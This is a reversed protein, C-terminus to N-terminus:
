GVADNVLLSCSRQLELLTACCHRGCTEEAVCSTTASSVNAVLLAKLQRATMSILVLTCMLKYFSMGFVFVCSAVRM